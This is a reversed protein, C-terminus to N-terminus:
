ILVILVGSNLKGAADLKSTGVLKVHYGLEKLQQIDCCRINQIGECFVREQDSRRCDMGM